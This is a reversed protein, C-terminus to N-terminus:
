EAIISFTATRETCQVRGSADFYVYLSERFKRRYVYAQETRRQRCTQDIPLHCRDMEDRRMVQSPQGIAQRVEDKSMQPKARGLRVEDAILMGAGLLVLTVIVFGFMRLKSM